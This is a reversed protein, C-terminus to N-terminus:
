GSTKKHRRNLHESSALVGLGGGWNGFQLFESTDRQLTWLQDNEQSYSFTFTFPNIWTPTLTADFHEIRNEGVLTIQKQMVHNYKQQNNDNMDRKMFIGVSTPDVVVDWRQRKKLPEEM